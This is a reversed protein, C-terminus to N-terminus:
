AITKTLSMFRDMLPHDGVIHTADLWRGSKKAGADRLVHVWITQSNGDTFVLQDTKL